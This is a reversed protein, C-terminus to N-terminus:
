QGAPVFKIWHGAALSTPPVKKGQYFIEVDKGESLRILDGSAITVSMNSKAPIAIKTGADDTKRGRLLTAGQRSVVYIATASRDALAGTVQLAPHTVPPSAVALAPSTGTAETTQTPVSTVATVPMQQPSSNETVTVSTAMPISPETIRASYKSWAFFALGLLLPTGIMALHKRNLRSAAVHPRRPRPTLGEPRPNTDPHLCGNLAAGPAVVLHAYHIEGTVQGGAIVEVQQSSHLDGQIKGRVVVDPASVHGEITGTTEVILCSATGNDLTRGIVEGQIRGAVHLSGQFEVRGHVRM